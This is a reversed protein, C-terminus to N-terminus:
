EWAGRCNFLRLWIERSFCLIMEKWLKRVPLLTRDFGSNVISLEALQLCIDYSNAANKIYLRQVEHDFAASRSIYVIRTVVDETLYYKIDYLTEALYVM